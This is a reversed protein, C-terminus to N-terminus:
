QANPILAFREIDSKVTAPNFVVCRKTLKIVGLKKAKILNDVTRKSVGLYTAVDPKRWLPEVPTQNKSM